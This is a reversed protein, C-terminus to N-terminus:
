EKYYYDYKQLLEHTFSWAENHSLSSDVPFIIKVYLKNSYQNKLGELIAHMSPNNVERFTLQNPEQIEIILQGKSKRYRVTVVVKGKTTRAPQVLKDYKVKLSSYEKKADVAEVKLGQVKEELALNNIQLFEYSKTLSRLKDERSQLSEKLSISETQLLDNKTIKNKSEKKSTEIINLRIDNLRNFPDSV